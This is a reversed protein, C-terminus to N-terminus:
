PQCSLYNDHSYVNYLHREISQNENTDLLYTSSSELKLSNINFKSNIKEIFDFNEQHFLFLTLLFLSESNLIINRDQKNSSNYNILNLYDSNLDEKMEKLLLFLQDKLPLHKFFVEYRRYKENEILEQSSFQSNFFFFSFSATIYSLMKQRKESNHLINEKELAIDIANIYGDNYLSKIERIFSSIENTM